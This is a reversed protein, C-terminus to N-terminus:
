GTTDLRLEKLRQRAVGTTVGFAEGIIESVSASPKGGASTIVREVENKVAGAPMLLVRAYKDAQSLCLPSLRQADIACPFTQIRGLNPRLHLEVQAFQLALFYRRLTPSHRSVSLLSVVQDKDARVYAEVDSPIGERFFPEYLLRIGRHRLFDDIDVPFRTDHFEVDGSKQFEAIAAEAKPGIKEPERWAADDGLVYIAVISRGGPRTPRLAFTPPHPTSVAMTPTVRPPTRRDVGPWPPQSSSPPSVFLGTTTVVPAVTDGSREVSFARMPAGTPDISPLVHPASSDLPEIRLYSPNGKSAGNGM